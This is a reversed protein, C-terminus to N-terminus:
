QGIIQGDGGLARFGCGADMELSASSRVVAMAPFSFSRAGCGFSAWNIWAMKLLECKVVACCCIIKSPTCFIKVSPPANGSSAVFTTFSMLVIALSVLYAVRPRTDSM